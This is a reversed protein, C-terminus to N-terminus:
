SECRRSEEGAAEEVGRQEQPDRHEVALIDRGGAAAEHDSRGM